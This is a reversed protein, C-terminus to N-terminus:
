CRVMSKANLVESAQPNSRRCRTGALGAAERQWAHPSPHECNPLDVVARTVGDLTPADVRGRIANTLTSLTKELPVNIADLRARFLADPDADLLDDRRLTLLLRADDPQERAFARCRGCGRRQGCGQGARRAVAPIAREQDAAAPM